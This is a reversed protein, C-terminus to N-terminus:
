PPPAFVLPFVLYKRPFRAFDTERRNPPEPPQLGRTRLGEPSIGVMGAVRPVHVRGDSM